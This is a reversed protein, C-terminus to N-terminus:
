HILDKYIDLVTKAMNEITFFKSREFGFEILKQRLSGDSLGQKIGTAIADIDNPNVEIAGGRTIEPLSSVNSTLVPVRSAFAEIVPLGFGENFSPFVFLKALAYVYKIDLNDIKGICIVNKIKDVPVIKELEERYISMLLPIKVGSNNYAEIIGPINKNPKNSGIFLIYENPLKLKQKTENLRDMNINTFFKDEIGNYVVSIHTRRIELTKSINKRSFESVTVIRSSDKYYNNLFVINIFNDFSFRSYGSIFSLDHITIIYPFNKPIFLPQCSPNHFLDPKIKRILKSITFKDKIGVNLKDTKIINVKDGFHELASDNNILVSYLHQPAIKNLGSILNILHRSVGDMRENIVRGDFLIHYNRSM